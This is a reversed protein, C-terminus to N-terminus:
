VPLGAWRVLPRLASAALAATLGLLFLKGNTM